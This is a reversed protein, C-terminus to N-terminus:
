SLACKEKITILKGNEDEVMLKTNEVDQKAQAHKEDSDALQLKKEDIAGQTAAIEELKAAKLAEYANKNALEEKQSEDLNSEFTEKMQKLIGFIEGSQPTYAQRFTPQQDQALALGM